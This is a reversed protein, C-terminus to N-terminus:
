DEAPLECQKYQHHQGAHAKDHSTHFTASACTTRRGSYTPHVSTATSPVRLPSLTILAKLASPFIESRNMGAAGTGDFTSGSQVFAAAPEGWSHIQQPCNGDGDDEPEPSRQDQATVSHNVGGSEDIVEGDEIADDDPLPTKLIPRHPVVPSPRSPAFRCTRSASFGIISACCGAVSM